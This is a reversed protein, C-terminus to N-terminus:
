GKVGQMKVEGGLSFERLRDVLSHANRMYQNQMFGSNPTTGMDCHGLPEMVMLVASETDDNEGSGTIEYILSARRRSPERIPSSLAWYEQFRSSAANVVPVKM